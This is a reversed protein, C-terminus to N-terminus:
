YLEPHLLHIVAMMIGVKLSDKRTMRGNSLVQITGNAAGVKPEETLGVQKVAQSGDLGQMILDFVKKPWEFGDSLGLHFNRGDYIACFSIELYGTKTYPVPMLGSELGFSLACDGAADFAAKARDRAGRVTDELTKPHGFEDVNVDIGIVEPDTFFEPYTAVVETVAALKTPNKSGVHLKM